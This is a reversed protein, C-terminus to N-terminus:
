KVYMEFRGVILGYLEEWASQYCGYHERCYNSAFVALRKSCGQAM